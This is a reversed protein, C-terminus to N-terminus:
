GLPKGFVLSVDSRRVDRVQDLLRSGTAAPPALQRNNHM